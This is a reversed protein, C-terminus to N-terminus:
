FALRRAQIPNGEHAGRLRVASTRLLNEAHADWDREEPSTTALVVPANPTGIVVLQTSKAFPQMQANIADATRQNRAADFASIVEAPVVYIGVRGQLLAANQSFKFAREQIRTLKEARTEARTAARAAMRIKAGQPGKPMRRTGSPYNPHQRLTELTKGLTYITVSLAANKLRLNELTAQATPVAVYRGDIQPRQGVSELQKALKAIKENLAIREVTLQALRKKDAMEWRKIEAASLRNFPTQIPAPQTAATKARAPFQLNKM